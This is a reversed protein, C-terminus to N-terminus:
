TSEPQNFLRELWTVLVNVQPVDPDLFRATIATGYPRGPEQQWALWTHMVAKPKDNQSFRQEPISDVSATVHSFLANPQQPILFHLFDELTGPTQNDPIIWVGVRPLPPEVPPEIITGNPNPTSPVDRYGASTLINRISQWRSDPNADADIVIGVVDDNGISAGLRTPIHDLLNASGSLNQVEFLSSIGRVVGIHRLVHEDDVGEVLLANSGPM